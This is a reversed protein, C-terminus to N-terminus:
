RNRVQATQLYGCGFQSRQKTMFPLTNKIESPIKSSIEIASYKIMRAGSNSRAKPLAFQQIKIQRTNYPYISIRGLDENVNVFTVFKM